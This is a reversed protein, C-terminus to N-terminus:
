HAKTRNHFWYLLKVFISGLIQSKILYKNKDSLKNYDDTIDNIKQGLKFMFKIYEQKEQEGDEM